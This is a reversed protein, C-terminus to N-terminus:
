EKYIYLSCGIDGGVFTGKEIKIKEGEVFKDQLDLCPRFELRKGDSNQIIYSVRDVEILENATEDKYVFSWRDRKIVKWVPHKSFHMDYFNENARASTKTSLAYQVLTPPGQRWSDAKAPRTLHDLVTVMVITVFALVLFVGILELLGKLSGKM